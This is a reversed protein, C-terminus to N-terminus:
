KTLEWVCYVFVMGGIFGVFFASAIFTVAIAM